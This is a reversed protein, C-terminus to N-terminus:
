KVKFYLESKGSNAKIFVKPLVGSWPKGCPALPKVYADIAELKKKHEESSLKLRFANKWDLGKWVNYYPMWVCYEFITAKKFLTEPISYPTHPVTELTLEQTKVMDQGSKPSITSAPSMSSVTSECSTRVCSCYTGVILKIIKATNIHDPWGEGWHPIFIVDPSIQHLLTILISYQTPDANEKNSPIKGDKFDLEFIHDEPVGLISLANHTLQRRHSIVEDESINCCSGHSAGGGTMVIIYPPNGESVLHSILGGCGIVEDDPHPAVIVVKGSPNLDHLRNTKSKLWDVHFRRIVDKVTGFM